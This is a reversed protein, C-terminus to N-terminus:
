GTENKWPHSEDDEEDEAVVRAHPPKIRRGSHGDGEENHTDPNPLAHLLRLQQRPADCLALVRREDRPKSEVVVRADLGDIAHASVVDTGLQEDFEVNHQRLYHRELLRVVDALRQLLLDLREVKNLACEHMQVRLAVVFFRILM